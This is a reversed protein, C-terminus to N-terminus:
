VEIVVYIAFTFLPKMHIIFPDNHPALNLQQWLCNTFSDWFREVPANRWHKKMTWSEMPQLSCWSALRDPLCCMAWWATWKRNRSRAICLRVKIKIDFRPSYVGCKNLRGLLDLVIKKGRKDDVIEFEGVYELFPLSHYQLLVRRKCSEWSSSLSQMWQTYYYKDNAQVNPM